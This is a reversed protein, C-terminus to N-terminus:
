GRSGSILQYTRRESISGLEAVAIALFDLALALPQAHFNGGSLIADDNPFINPNDTVANIETLLVQEAYKLADASAGHVQPVCRFSYPDQVYEKASNALKSHQLINRIFAAVDQQGSHPRIRHLREDFPDLSGDFADISLATTLNALQLLRKSEMLCWALYAASFQTGNLLALGEKSHLHLPEWNFKKL